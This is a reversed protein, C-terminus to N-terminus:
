KKLYNELWEPVGVNLLKVFYNIEEKDLYKEFLEFLHLADELDKNGSLKIKFVIQLEIPSTYFIHKGFIVKVRNNLSYNDTTETPFKIECNPQIEDKKAVRLSSGEELLEYLTKLDDGNIFWYGARKVQEAFERFKKFSLKEIFFDIDETARTRGFFIAIYGSVVVYKIGGLEAIFDLVFKDLKNLEKEFVIETESYSKIM